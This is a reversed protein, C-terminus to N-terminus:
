QTPSISFFKSPAITFNRPAMMLKTMTTRRCLVTPNGCSLNEYFGLNPWFQAYIDPFKCTSRIINIIIDRETRGPVLFTESVILLPSFGM